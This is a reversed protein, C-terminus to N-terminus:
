FPSTPDGQLRIYNKVFIPQKPLLSLYNEISFPFLLYHLLHQLCPISLPVDFMKQDILDAFMKVKHKMTMFHICAGGWGSCDSTFLLHFISTKYWDSNM